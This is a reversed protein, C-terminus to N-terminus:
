LVRSLAGGAGTQHRFDALAQFPGRLQHYLDVYIPFLRDYLASTGGDPRYVGRPEVCTKCASAADKFVGTAVGALIANGVPAGASVPPVVVPRGAVDSIIQIWLPNKAAGGQIRVEGVEWGSRTFVEFNQRV